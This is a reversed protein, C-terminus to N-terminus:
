ERVLLQGFLRKGFTPGATNPIITTSIPTANPHEALWINMSHTLDGFNDASFGIIKNM